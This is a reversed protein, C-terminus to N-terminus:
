AALRHVLTRGRARDRGALKADFLARDACGYLAKWDTEALLAGSCRGISATVAVDYPMRAARLQDLIDRAEVPCDLPLVIAFEEGGIRAVLADPPVAPQLTRAVVRLVEDGGDHGITENVLKFHDLDVIMLVHEGTRGIASALFARRNLLGTLPDTDALLRAAIEGELAMDREHSLVRIRYAIALSSLLAELAMMLITSNDLWFSWAVLGFGSAVRLCAFLIPAGWSLAFLWLYNSRLRWARWLMPVIVAVQGILALSFFRDVLWIDYQGFLGYGFAAVTMAAGAIAFLRSLWPAFVHPEFFLRAFALAAVTSLGLTLYNFRIRDNNALEPWAWVLAGSTSFAYLLLGLVMACYTLQFRHRLVAWLALHYFLLALCLGAFAAYVASLLLNSRISQAPTAIRAACVIGRLNAAGEVHWLLRILPSPREPLAQALIAGLQLHRSLGQQDFAVAVIKGDGYLAYLAVRKQWLSAWRVEVPGSRDLPASRVWYDGAGFSSQTRDCTFRATDAFLRQPTMGARAPTVCLAIAEGTIGAQASAPAASLGFGALALILALLSMLRSCRM